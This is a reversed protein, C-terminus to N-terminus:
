CGSIIVKIYILFELRLLMDYGTLLFTNNDSLYTHKHGFSNEGDDYSM